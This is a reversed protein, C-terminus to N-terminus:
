LFQGPGPGEGSGVEGLGGGGSLQGQDGTEVLVPVIVLEAARLPM